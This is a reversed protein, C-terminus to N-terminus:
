PLSFARLHPIHLYTFLIMAYLIIHSMINYIEYYHQDIIGHNM